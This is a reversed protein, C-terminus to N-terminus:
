DDAPACWGRVEGVVGEGAAADAQRRTLWGALWGALLKGAQRGALRDTKLQKLLDSQWRLWARSAEEGM